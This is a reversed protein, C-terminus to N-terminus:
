SATSSYSIGRGRSPALNWASVGEDRGDGGVNSFYAKRSQQPLSCLELVGQVTGRDAGEGADKIAVNMAAYKAFQPDGRAKRDSGAHSEKTSWQGASRMLPHSIM